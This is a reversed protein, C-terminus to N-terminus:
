VSILKLGGKNSKQQVGSNGITAVYWLNIQKKKAIQPKM